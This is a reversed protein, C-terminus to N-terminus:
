RANQAPTIVASIKHIVGNSTVLDVVQVVSDNSGAFGSVDKNLTVMSGDVTVTVSGGLTSFSSASVVDPSFLAGAAV